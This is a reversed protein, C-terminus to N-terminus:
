ASTLPSQLDRSAPKLNQIIEKFANDAVFIDFLIHLEGEPFPPSNM